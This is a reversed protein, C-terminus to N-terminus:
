RIGNKIFLYSFCLLYIFSFVVFIILNERRSIKLLYKNTFLLILALIAYEFIMAKFTRSFEKLCEYCPIPPGTEIWIYQLFVGIPLCIIATIIGKKM